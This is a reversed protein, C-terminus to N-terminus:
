QEMLKELGLWVKLTTHSNQLNIFLSMITYKHCICVYIHLIHLVIFTCYVVWWYFVYSYIYQVRLLCGDALVTLHMMLMVCNVSRVFMHLYITTYFQDSSPLRNITNRKSAVYWLKTWWQWRWLTSISWMCELSPHLTWFNQM